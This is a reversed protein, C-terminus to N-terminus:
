ERKDSPAAGSVFACASLAILMQGGYYTLMVILHAYPFNLVFLQFSLVGDSVMFSLSGLTALTISTQSFHAPSRILSKAVMVSIVSSYVAVPVVFDSPLHPLLYLFM